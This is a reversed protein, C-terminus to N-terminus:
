LAEKKRLALGLLGLGFITLTAPEPVTSAISTTQYEFNDFYVSNNNNGQGWFKVYSIHNASVSLAHGGSLTDPLPFQDSGLLLDNSDYANLFISDEDDGFDGLVVSVFDIDLGNTFSAMNRNGPVAYEVPFMINPVSFPPGPFLERVKLMGASNTFSVDAYDLSTYLADATLEDFTIVAAPAENTKALLLLMISFFFVALKSKM